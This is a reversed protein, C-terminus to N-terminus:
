THVSSYQWGAGRGPSDHPELTQAGPSYQQLSLQPMQAGSSPPHMSSKQPGGLSDPMGHPGVIQGGPCTQQLSLQPMQVGGSPRQMM